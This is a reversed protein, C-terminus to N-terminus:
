CGCAHPATIPESCGSCYSYAYPSYSQNDLAVAVAVAHELRKTVTVADLPYNPQVVAVEHM